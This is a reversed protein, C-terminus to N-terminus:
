KFCASCNSVPQWVCHLTRALASFAPAPVGNNYFFRPDGFNLIEVVECASIIKGEIPVRSTENEQFLAINNAYRFCTSAMANFVKLKLDM